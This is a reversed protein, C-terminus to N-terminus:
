EYFSPAAQGLFNSYGVHKSAKGVFKLKSHDQTDETRHCTTLDCHGGITLQDQGRRCLAVRNVAKRGERIRM